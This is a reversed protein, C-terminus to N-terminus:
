RRPSACPRRPKPQCCCRPASRRSPMSCRPRRPRPARPWNSKEGLWRAQRAAAPNDATRAVLREAMARATKYERMEKASLAAAYLTGAQQAPSSRAFEGSDAANIWQRLVDVGPRTLVRARSAIMAHDMALPLAPATDMRFQFRGQMDSIRETTLPHSRLYPFSGNDNLRSAYQLKEFM